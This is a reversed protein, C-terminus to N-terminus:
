GCQRERLYCHSSKASSEYRWRRGTLGDHSEAMVKDADGRGISTPRQTDDLRDHRRPFTRRHMDVSPFLLDETDQGAAEAEPAAVVIHFQLSTPEHDERAPNRVAELIDAREFPSQQHQDGRAAELAKERGNFSSRRLAEPLGCRDCPFEPHREHRCVRSILGRSNKPNKACPGPASVYDTERRGM